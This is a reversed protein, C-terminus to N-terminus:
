NLLYGYLILSLIIDIVVLSVRTRMASFLEFNFM